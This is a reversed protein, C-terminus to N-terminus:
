YGWGYRYPSAYSTGYYPYYGTGYGYGYYPAYGYGYSGYRYAGYGGYGYGYSPYSYGYYPYAGYRYGYAPYGWGYYPNALATGLAFSGFGIAAAWGPSIAHAPRPTVVAVTGILAATVVIGRGTRKAATSM